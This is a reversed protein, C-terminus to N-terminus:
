FRARVCGAGITPLCDGDKGFGCIIWRTNSARILRRFVFAAHLRLGHPSTVVPLTYSRSRSGMVRSRIRRALPAGVQLTYFRAACFFKWEGSWARRAARAARWSRGMWTERACGTAQGASGSATPGPRGTTRRPWPRTTAASPSPSPCAQLPRHHAPQTTAHPIDGM